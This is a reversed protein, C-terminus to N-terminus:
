VIFFIIDLSVTREKLLSQCPSNSCCFFLHGIFLLVKVSSILPNRKVPNYLWDYVMVRFIEWTDMNFLTQQRDGQITENFDRLRLQDAVTVGNLFGCPEINAGLERREGLHFFVLKNQHAILVCREVCLLISYLLMLPYYITISMLPWGDASGYLSRWCNLSPLFAQYM